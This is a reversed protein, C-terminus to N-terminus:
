PGFDTDQKWTQVAVHDLSSKFFHSLTQTVKLAKPEGLKKWSTGFYRSMEGEGRMSAVSFTHGVLPLGPPSPIRHVDYKWRRWVIRAAILAVFTFVVELLM